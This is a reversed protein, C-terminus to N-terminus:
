GSTQETSNSGLSACGGFTVHGVSVAAKGTSAAMVLSGALCRSVKGSIWVMNVSVSAALVVKAQSFLGPRRDTSSSM